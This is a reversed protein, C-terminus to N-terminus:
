WHSIKKREHMKKNRTIAKKKKKKKKKQKEKEKKKKKKTGM